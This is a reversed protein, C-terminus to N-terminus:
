KRKWKVGQPTDELIIGKESLENRISDALAYNKEKKAMTRQEILAEIEEASIGSQDETKLFGMLGAIRNYFDNIYSTTELSKPSSLFINIEKVADFLVAIGNATNFDNDMEECFKNELAELKKVFEKESSDASGEKAVTMMYKINAQCNYLRELSNKATELVEISFTVPSRYHASLIFFRIADYGFKEGADRVTFFNGASKSMKKVENKEDCVNIYGNHIWFRSFPVGFAAESQAIENEHHPFTLDQGGCHIDITKGLYKNVMASCEIHWGPRGKGWPTEWYPEGPKYAKWLAFDLPDEKIEGVSIRAGSDLEDVSIGSLKGYQAFKRTSFYVDGERVYAFGKEILTSIIDIIEDINETARPHVTAPQVGLAQADKFYEGIYKEAIDAVTTNEEQARKIMKDDIDTFNQVFVVKNGRYELYRRLLDFLVFCRANGVHFFNYVTPGCAYMRVTNDQPNLEEYKNTLSNYLQM